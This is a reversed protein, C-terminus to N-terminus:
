KVQYDSLTSWGYVTRRDKGSRRPTRNIEYRVMERRENPGIRRESRRRDPGLYPKQMATEKKCILSVVTHQETSENTVSAM